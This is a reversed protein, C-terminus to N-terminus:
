RDQLFSELNGELVIQPKLLINGDFGDFNKGEAIHEYLYKFALRGQNFPDQFITANIIGKELYDNLESFIDSAVIKIKGGMDLEIIKKCVTASNASCIYLGGVDPYEKLLKDTAHYAINPDDQNEYVAVVNLPYKKQQLMFGDINEKHVGRDKFGTFIAVPKDQVLMWLLDAAIKGSIIGNNRVSILRKSNVVDSIVTAIPIDKYFLEEIVQDYERMDDSPVLIIGNFGSEGMKRMISIMESRGYPQNVIHFDGQVNFDSLEDCAKKAGRLVENNFDYISEQMVFGIKITKRALSMAAKNAKFGMQKATEIVLRRTEESVKPKGNLARNVTATSVGLKNSIDYITVKM